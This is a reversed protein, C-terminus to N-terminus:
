RPDYRLILCCGTGHGDNFVWYYSKFWKSREFWYNTDNDRFHVGSLM